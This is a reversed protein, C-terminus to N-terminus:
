GEYASLYERIQDETVDKALIDDYIDDGLRRLQPATEGAIKVSSEKGSLYEFDPNLQIYQEFIAKNIPAAEDQRLYLEDQSFDNLLYALFKMAANQQNETVSGSVAWLDAFEGSFEGESELGVVSYYGPLANQVSRLDSSDAFLYLLQDAKMADLPPVAPDVGQAQINQKLAIVSNVFGDSIQIKGDSILDRGYLTLFGPMDKKMIQVSNGGLLDDLNAISEPITKEEIKAVQNNGYLTSVTFGLPMAKKSPFLTEYNELFLYEAPNLSRCLLDLPASSEAAREELGDLRYLAPLNGDEAAAEIKATYEGGPVAEFDIEIQANGKQFSEAIRQYAETQAQGLDADDSVPFWVSVTDEAITISELTDTPKLITSYLSVTVILAVLVAMVGAILIGRRTRRKKYEVEPYDVRNNKFVAAKFDSVKQFRIDPKLAMAKMVARNLNEDIKIGLETPKKLHDKVQRDLAEEPLVGTIMKYLTAGLGYIDTFPGQKSKTRYQEPSAYGQTVVVTLTAEDEGMSLRAAGFDLLKIHNSTTIFINGPHIDRHVIGKSHIAILADMVPRVIDLADKVSLRGDNQALYDRLAVGELYEMVIYATNNEEFFNYVNVINPNKNFMALNKAEGLFRQKTQMYNEKKEGSFIVVEKTGPVRSVLGAPYFEKLAVISSLQSDWAKYITGFGGFGSVTGVVYRGSLAVGPRLHYAQDPLM